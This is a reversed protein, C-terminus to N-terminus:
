IINKSYLYCIFLFFPKVSVSNNTTIAIIAIKAPIINVKDKRWIEFNNNSTSNDIDEITVAIIKVGLDKVKEDVNFNISM